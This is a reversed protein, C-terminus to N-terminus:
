RGDRSHGGRLDALIASLLTDDTMAPTSIRPLKDSCRDAVHIARKAGWDDWLKEDEHMIRALDSGTLIVIRRHETM